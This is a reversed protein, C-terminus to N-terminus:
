GIQPKGMIRMVLIVLFYLILTRFALILM